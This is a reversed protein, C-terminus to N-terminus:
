VKATTKRVAGLGAGGAILGLSVTAPIVKCLEFAISFSSLLAIDTAGDTGSFGARCEAAPRPSVDVGDAGAVLGSRGATGRFGDTAAPGATLDTGAGPM